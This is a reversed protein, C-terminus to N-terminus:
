IPNKADLKEIRLSNMMGFRSMRMQDDGERIVTSNNNEGLFGTLRQILTLGGM